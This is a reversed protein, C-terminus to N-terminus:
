RLHIRWLNLGFRYGSPRLGCRFRCWLLPTHAQKYQTQENRNVSDALPLKQPGGPPMKVYTLTSDPPQATDFSVEVGFACAQPADSACHHIISKDLLKRSIHRKIVFIDAHPGLPWQAPLELYRTPWSASATVHGNAPRSHGSNACLPCEPPCHGPSM